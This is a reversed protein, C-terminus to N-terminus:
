TKEKDYPTGLAAPPTAKGIWGALAIMTFIYPTIEIFQPPVGFGQVRAATAEALGFLLSAGLAGWPTWKGFILAALAIFGRGATMERVFVDLVGISLYAGALGSLAGSVIVGIYRVLYVNVGLTDAAQPNEGVARLRLGFPTRYLLWHTFIVIGIALFVIPSLQNIVPIPNLLQIRGPLRPVKPSTGAVGFIARLMFVTLGVALLNIATGSIVQNAKFHISVVAHVLGILAGVLVAVMVGLWPNGLAHSAVVAFFAGFLMMGELAINVVGSRESYLGGMSAIILPTAFRIASAVLAIVFNM